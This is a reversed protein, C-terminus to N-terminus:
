MLTEGRKTWDTAPSLAVGPEASQLLATANTGDEQFSPRQEKATEGIHLMRGDTPQEIEPVIRCRRSVKGLYRGLERKNDQETAKFTQVMSRTM